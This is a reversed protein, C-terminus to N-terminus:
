GNLAKREGATAEIRALKLGTEIQAAQLATVRELLRDITKNQATIIELLKGITNPDNVITGNGQIQFNNKGATIQNM